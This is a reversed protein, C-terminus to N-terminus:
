SFRSCDEISIKDSDVVKVLADKTAQLTKVANDVEEQTVDQKDITAKAEDM